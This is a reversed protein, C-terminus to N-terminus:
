EEAILPRIFLLVYFKDKLKAAPCWRQPPSLPLWEDDGVLLCRRPHFSSAPGQCTKRERRVRKVHRKERRSRWWGTARTLTRRQVEPPRPLLQTCRVHVAACVGCEQHTQRRAAQDTQFGTSPPAKSGLLNSQRCRSLATPRSGPPFCNHQRKICVNWQASLILYQTSLQFM